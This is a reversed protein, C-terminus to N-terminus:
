GKPNSPVCPFLPLIMKLPFQILNGQFPLDLSLLLTYTLLLTNIGNFIFM